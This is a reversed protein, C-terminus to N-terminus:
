DENKPDYYKRENENEPIRALYFLLDSLRNIYKIINPNILKEYNNLNALAREASRTDGRAM